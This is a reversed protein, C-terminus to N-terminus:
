HHVGSSPPAADDPPPPASGVSGQFPLAGEDWAGCAGSPSWLTELSGESWLGAPERQEAEAGERGPPARVWVAQLSM